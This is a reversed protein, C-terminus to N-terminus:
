CIIIHIEQIKGTWGMRITSIIQRLINVILMVLFHIQGVVQGAQLVVIVQMHQVETLLVSISELEVLSMTRNWIRSQRSEAKQSDDFEVQVVAV